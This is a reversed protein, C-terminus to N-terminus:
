FGFFRFTAVPSMVHRGQWECAPVGPGSPRGAAPRWRCPRVAHADLVNQAMSDCRCPSKRLESCCARLGNGYNYRRLLGHPFHSKRFYAPKVHEFLYYKLQCPELLDHSSCFLLFITHRGKSLQPEEVDNVAARISQEMM